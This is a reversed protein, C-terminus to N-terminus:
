LKMIFACCKLKWCFCVCLFTIEQVVVYVTLSGTNIWWAYNRRKKKRGQKQWGTGSGLNSCGLDGKSGLKWMLSQYGIGSVLCNELQNFEIVDRYKIGRWFKQRIATHIKYLRCQPCLKMLKAHHTPNTNNHHIGFIGYQTWWLCKRRGQKRGCGMGTGLSSHDKCM